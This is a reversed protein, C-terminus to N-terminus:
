QSARAFHKTLVRGHQPCEHWESIKIPFVGDAGHELAVNETDDESLEDVCVIIQKSIPRISDLCAGIHKGADRAILAFGLSPPM